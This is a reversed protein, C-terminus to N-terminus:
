SFPDDFSSFSDHSDFSSFSDHSDFPDHSDFLGIGMDSSTGFANGEIDIANDIM